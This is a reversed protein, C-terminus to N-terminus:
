IEDLLTHLFEYAKRAEANVEEATVEKTSVRKDGISLTEVLAPGSFGNDALAGFLRSFDIEGDGPTVIGDKFDKICVGAVYPAVEGIEASPDGDVYHRVNGPDYCIRFGPSDVREVVELCDKGTACPDGHPKIMITIGQEYAYDAVSKLEERYGGTILLYPIGAYKLKDVMERTPDGLVVQANLGHDRTASMLKDIDEQSSEASLLHPRTKESIRAPANEALGLHRMYGVNSFGAKQVGDLTEEISFDRWPRNFCGLKCKM